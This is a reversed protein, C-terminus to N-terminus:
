SHKGLTYTSMPRIRCMAKSTYARVGAWLRNLDLSAWVLPLSPDDAQLILAMSMDARVRSGSCHVLSSETVGIM